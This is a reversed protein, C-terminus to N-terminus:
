ICPYQESDVGAVLWTSLVISPSGLTPAEVDLKTWHVCDKGCPIRKSGGQRAERLKCLGLPRSGSANSPFSFHTFHETRVIVQKSRDGSLNIEFLCLKANYM